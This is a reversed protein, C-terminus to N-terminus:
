TEQLVARPLTSITLTWDAEGCIALLTDCAQTSNRVGAMFNRELDLGPAICGELVRRGTGPSLVRNAPHIEIHTRGPVDQVGYYRWRGTTNRKVIYTGEPICSINVQNDRWPPELTYLTQDPLMLRGLTGEPTYAFRELYLAKIHAM